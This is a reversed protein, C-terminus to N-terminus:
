SVENISLVNRYRKLREPSAFIADVDEKIEMNLSQNAMVLMLYKNNGSQETGLFSGAGRLRLDEKAIQFGNCTQTFVQFKDRNDTMLYCYSKDKGRGVRGRLQHIQAFGFREANKILMITANPVNVGVEIITTAILVDYEHNRFKELTEENKVIDAAKTSGTVMGVSYGYNAFYKVANRFEDEVDVVDSMKENESETKLPCVIYAQHGKDLEELIHFYINNNESPLALHTDVKQRGAPMVNITEVDILDGYLSLALSRPIPTASMSVKHVGPRNLKNRQEVGFRHEEDIISIGLNKFKINDSMVSHTGVVIDLEGNNIKKSIENLERKKLDGSVFGVRFGLPECKEKIEAYHQKALLQTPAVLAGQYGNECLITLLLIALLTKGCGVDGQVLANVKKGQMMKITINNLVDRQGSTNVGDGKTLPYPLAKMLEKTKDLGTIRIHTDTNVDDMNAKMHYNFLFLDNILLRKKGDDIDQMSEPFHLKKLAQSYSTVQYKHQLVPELFDDKEMMQLAKKMQEELFSASMGKIASYVPHIHMNKAIDTTFIVPNFMTKFTSYPNTKLMGCILVREGIAFNKALFDMHFFNVCMRWNKDDKVIFQLVKESLKIDEITAITCCMEDPDLYMIYDPSTFDYYKRPIYNVLDEITYIGKREFQSIKDKRLQLASINM